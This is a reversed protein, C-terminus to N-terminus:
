TDFLGPHSRTRSEPAILCYFGLGSTPAARPNRIGRHSGGQATKAATLAAVEGTGSAAAQCRGTARCGHRQLQPHGTSLDAGSEKGTNM